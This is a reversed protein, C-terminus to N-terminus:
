CAGVQPLPAAVIRRGAVKTLPLRICVDRGGPAWPTVAAEISAREVPSTVIEALGTVVVSWGTRGIPDVDDVEFALVGGDAARALETSGATRLVVAGELVAFTVPVIAPLAEVTFVVRGVQARGLMALCDAYPLVEIRRGDQHV